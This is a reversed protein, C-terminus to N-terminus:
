DSRERYQLLLFASCVLCSSVFMQDKLCIERTLHPNLSCQHTVPGVSAVVVFVDVETGHDM